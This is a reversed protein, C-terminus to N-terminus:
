YQNETSLLIRAQKVWEPKFSKGPIQKVILKLREQQKPNLAALQELTEIGSEKLLAEISPGIGKIKKLNNVQHPAPLESLSPTLKTTVSEAYDPLHNEHNFFSVPNSHIRSENFDENAHDTQDLPEVMSRFLALEEDDNSTEELHWQISNIEGEGEGQPSHFAPHTNQIPDPRHNNQLTREPAPQFQTSDSLLKLQRIEKQLLANSQRLVNLEKEQPAAASEFQEWYRKNALDLEKEVKATKRREDKIMRSANNLTEKAKALTERLQANQKAAEHLKSEIVSRSQSKKRHTDGLWLWAMAFGIAAAILMFVLILTAQLWM